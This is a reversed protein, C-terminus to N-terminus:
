IQINTGSTNKGLAVDLCYKSNLKSVFYYYGEGADELIWKQANTGNRTYQWVNAGNFAVGDKVDLAKNSNRNIICYTGDQNKIIKFKQANRGNSAYIEVNAKDNKSANDIDIVQHNGLASAITYYGDEITETTTTESANVVYSFAFISFIAIWLIYLSKKSIKKM